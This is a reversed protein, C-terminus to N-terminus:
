SVLVQHFASVVGFSGSDLYTVTPSTHRGPEWAATKINSSFTCAPEHHNLVAASAAVVTLCISIAGSVPTQHEASRLSDGQGRAPVAQAPCALADEAYRAAELLNRATTSM